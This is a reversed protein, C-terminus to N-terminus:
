KEFKHIFLGSRLKPEFWTSKPPMLRGEDAVKFLEDLSTPYMAFAVAYGENVKKTLEKLGRIGGVFNIRKDVKPDKIGLIPDLLYDQLISVDLGKVSDNSKISDDMQISYWDGMLDMSMYGKAQPYTEKKIPTTKFGAQNIKDLFEEKTLGNLDKVIRNYDYIKLEDESFIVSMFFNFEEQGTFGPHEERRKVGVKVASACRHHGDAIYLEPIAQFTEYVKKNEDQNMKWVEHKIGDSSTFAYLPTRLIVQNIINKLTENPRYALFIPGTQACCTDVHHIRDLEKDARTNEHKKIINNLYDDISAVAVIGRQTREGMTEAYVYYSEENDEIFWGKHLWDDLMEKAKEYMRPAYMDCELDFQTEPRDIALFSQPHKKVEEYAEARDYVDYPLAAITSAMEQSPRMCKFPKINSM